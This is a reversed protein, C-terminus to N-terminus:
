KLMGLKSLDQYKRLGKKGMKKMLTKMARYQKLLEKVDKGSTGSGRAIRNIRSSSIIKPDRLEDATMSQLIVRWKELKEKAIDQYGPPVKTGLGM